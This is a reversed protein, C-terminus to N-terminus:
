VGNGGSFSLGRQGLEFTTCNQGSKSEPGEYLLRLTRSFVSARSVAWSSDMPRVEFAHWRIRGSLESEACCSFYLQTSYCQLFIDESHAITRCWANRPPDGSLGCAVCSAPREVPHGVTM